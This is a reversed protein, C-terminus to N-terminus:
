LMGRSHAEVVAELRTRAGLERLVARVHNRATERAVGLREAIMETSAGEGLLMLTERQRPTLHPARRSSQPPEIRRPTALGFVGVPRHNRGSVAVSSIEVPTSGRRTRVELRLETAEKRGLIKDEFATTARSRDQPVIVDLFAHGTQDGVLDRASENLWRIQGNVDILYAPVRMRELADDLRGGLAALQQTPPPAKAM